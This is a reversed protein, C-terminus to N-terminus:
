KQEFKRTVQTAYRIDLPLVTCDKVKFILIVTISKAILNNIQISTM